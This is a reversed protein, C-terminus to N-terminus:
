PFVKGGQASTTHSTTWGVNFIVFLLNSLAFGRFGSRINIVKFYHFLAIQSEVSRITRATLLAKDRATDLSKTTQAPKDTNNTCVVGDVLDEMQHSQFTHVCLMREDQLIAKQTVHNIINM